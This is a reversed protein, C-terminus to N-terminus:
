LIAYFLALENLQWMRLNTRILDFTDGINRLM